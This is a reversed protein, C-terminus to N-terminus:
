AQKQRGYFNIREISKSYHKAKLFFFLMPATM